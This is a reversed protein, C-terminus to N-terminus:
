RLQFQAILTATFIYIKQPVSAKWIETQRSGTMTKSMVLAVFSTCNFCCTEIM